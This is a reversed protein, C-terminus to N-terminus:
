TWTNSISSILLSIEAVSTASIRHALSTTFGAALTGLLEIIFLRDQFGVLGFGDKFHLAGHSGTVVAQVVVEEVRVLGHYHEAIRLLDYLRHQLGHSSLISPM